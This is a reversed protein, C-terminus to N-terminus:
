CDGFGRAANEIVAVGEIFFSQDDGGSDNRRSGLVKVVDFVIKAFM